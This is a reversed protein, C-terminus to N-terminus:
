HSQLSKLFELLLDTLEKNHETGFIYTGHGSGSFIKQKKPEKAIKMFKALSQAPYYDDTSAVFLKPATIKSVDATADLGRFADPGSLSIVGLVPKRSAVKLAATGGMSAGMLVVHQVKSSLFDFAAEMDLDIKAIDQTGSSEGYGRFDFALATYGKDALVKAFPWWSEQSEPYMHGLVVGTKGTGFVRGSILIGDKTKFSIKQGEAAHMAVSCVGIVILITLLRQLARLYM